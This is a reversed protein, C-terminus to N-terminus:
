IGFRPYALLHPVLLVPLSSTRQWLYGSILGNDPSILYGLSLLLPEQYLILRQPLHGANFLLAQVLIAWGLPM